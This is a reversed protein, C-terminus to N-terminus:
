GNWIGLAAIVLLTINFIVFFMNLLKTRRVTFIYASLLAFGPLRWALFVEMCINSFWSLVWMALNSIMIYILMNRMVPNAPSSTVFFLLIAVSLIVFELVMFLQLPVQIDAHFYYGSFLGSLGTDFPLTLFSLSPVLYVTGFLIWYPTIVGLLAALTHRVTLMRVMVLYIAFLPFVYLAQPFLLTVCALLMFATYIRREVGQPRYCSFLLVTAITFLLTSFALIFDAHILFLSSAVWLFLGALWPTSSELVVLSNLIYAVVVYLIFSFLRGAWGHLVPSAYPDLVSYVNDGAQFVLGALWLLLAAVSLFVSTYRGTVFRKQLTDNYIM